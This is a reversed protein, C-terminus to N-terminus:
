RPALEPTAKATWTGIALVKTVLAQAAKMEVAGTTSRIEDTMPSGKQSTSPVAQAVGPLLILLSAALVQLRM